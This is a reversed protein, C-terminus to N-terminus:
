PARGDGRVCRVTFLEAATVYFTSESSKISKFPTACAPPNEVPVQPCEAFQTSLDVSSRARETLWASCPVRAWWRVCPGRAAGRLAEAGRRSSSPTTRTPRTACLTRTRRPCACSRETGTALCRPVAARPSRAGSVVRVWIVCDLPDPYDLEGAYDSCYHFQLPAHRCFRAFLDAAAVAAATLAFPRSPVTSTNLKLPRNKPDDFKLSTNYPRRLSTSMTGVPTEVQAGSTLPRRPPREATPAPCVHRAARPPRPPSSPVELYKQQMYLVYVFIYLCIATVSRPAASPATPRRALLLQARQPGRLRVCRAYRIIGLYRDRVRVVKATNDARARTTLMRARDGPGTRWVISRSSSGLAEWRSSARRRPAARKMRHAAARECAFIDDPDSSKIAAWCNCINGM